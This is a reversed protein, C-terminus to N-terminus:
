TDERGGMILQQNTLRDIVALKTTGGNTAEGDGRDGRGGKEAQIKRHVNYGRCM